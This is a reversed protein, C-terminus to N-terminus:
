LPLLLAEDACGQKAGLHGEVGDRSLSLWIWVLVCFGMAVGINILRGWSIKGLQQLHAFRDGGRRSSSGRGSGIREVDRAM